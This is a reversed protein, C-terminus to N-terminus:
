WDEGGNGGGNAGAGGSRMRGTVREMVAFKKLLTAPRYRDDGFEEQLAHLVTHVNKWGIRSGWSLPGDPYNVGLKMATDIAREDAVGHQLALVAENIVLALIRPFVLGAEDGVVRPERGFAAFFKAAVPPLEPKKGRPFSIEVAHAALFTPLAAIGIVREPRRFWSAIETASVAVANAFVPVKPGTDREIETLALRRKGSARVHFDFVLDVGECDEVAHVRTAHKPLRKQLSRSYVYCTHGPCADVWERVIAGPGTFLLRLPRAQGARPSGSAPKRGGSM